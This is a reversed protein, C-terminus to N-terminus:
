NEIRMIIDHILKYTALSEEFRKLKKLCVAKMYVFPSKQMIKQDKILDLGKEIRQLAQEYKGMKFYTLCAGYYADAWDPKIMILNEFHPM